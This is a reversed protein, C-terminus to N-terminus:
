AFIDILLTKIKDNMGLLKSCFIDILLTKVKDIVGLLKICFYGDPAITKVKQFAYTLM